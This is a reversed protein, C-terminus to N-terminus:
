RRLLREDPTLHTLRKRKKYGDGSGLGEVVAPNINGSILLSNAKAKAVAPLSAIIISKQAPVAMNETEKTDPM